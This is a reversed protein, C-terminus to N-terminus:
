NNSSTSRVTWGNFTYGNKEPQAPLNLTGDYTCSGANSGSPLTIATGNNASSDNYWTLNITNAEWVASCVTNGAVTYTGGASTISNTCSWEKFHYGDLKCQAATPVTSTFAAYTADYTVSIASIATGSVINTSAGSPKTGCNFTIQYNKPTWTATLTSDGAVKYPDITAGNAYSTNATAGTELNVTSTWGAFDYGPISFANSRLTVSSDYTASTNSMTGSFGTTRAGATGTAYSINYKNATYAAYVSLGSTRTWPTESAGPFNPETEGTETNWGTFTYGADVTIASRAAAPVTYNADYTAGNTHIYSGSGHAGANYTVTFTDPAFQATLTLPGDITYPTITQTETYGNAPASYGVDTSSGTWKVFHYGTDPTVGSQGSGTGMGKITYNTDFTAGNTDTSSGSGHTGAAYSVTYTNAAWQATLTPSGEYGYGTLTAGNNYNTSSSAGTELNVPSSWHDFHYGRASFGNSTLTISTDDFTVPSVSATSGTIYNADTHSGAQGKAFNIAYNVATWKAEYNVPGTYSDLYTYTCDAGTGAPTIDTAAFAPCAMCLIIGSTLFLKKM